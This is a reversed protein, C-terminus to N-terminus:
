LSCRQEAALATKGLMAGREAEKQHCHEDALTTEASV